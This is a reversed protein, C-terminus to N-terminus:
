SYHGRCYFSMIVTVKQQGPGAPSHPAGAVSQWVLRVAPAPTLAGPMSEWWTLAAPWPSQLLSIQSTVWSLFLSEM